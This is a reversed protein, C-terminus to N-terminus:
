ENLWARAQPEEDPRFYKVPASRSGAAAFAMAESEWWREGVIAIKAIEPGHWYMFDLNGWEAGRSWGEFNELIALIRPKTGGDIDGALAAQTSRFESPQVTSSLRLLYTDNTEQQITAPM